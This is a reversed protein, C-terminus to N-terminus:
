QKPLYEPPIPNDPREFDWFITVVYYRPGDKLLQISNVGRSFPETDEAAHRSEYTSMVHTINGFTDEKRAIEREYFGNQKFYESAAAYYGDVDLVVAQTRGGEVPATRILRAGPHFLSRFRRLDREQAAPGSISDYLADLIRGVSSVEELNAEEM